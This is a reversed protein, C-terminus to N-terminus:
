QVIRTIENTSMRLKDQGERVENVLGQNEDTLRNLDRTLNDFEAIRRKM